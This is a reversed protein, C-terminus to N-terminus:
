FSGSAPYIISNMSGVRLEKMGYLRNSGAKRQLQRGIDTYIDSDVSVQNVFSPNGWNWAIEDGGQHITISMDIKWKRYVYDMLRSAVGRMCSDSDSDFPFDRNPDIRSPFEERTNHAYGSPNVVPLYLVHKGKLYPFAYSSIWVGLKEDGHFGSVVLVTADAVPDYNPATYEFLPYQCPGNCDTRPLAYASAEDELKWEVLGSTTTLRDRWM